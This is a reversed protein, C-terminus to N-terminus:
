EQEQKQRKEHADVHKHVHESDFFEKMQAIKGQSNFRVLDVFNNHLPEGPHPFLCLSHASTRLTFSDVNRGRRTEQKSGRRYDNEYDHVYRIEVHRYGVVGSGGM